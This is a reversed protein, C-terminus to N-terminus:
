RDDVVIFPILEEPILLLEPLQSSADGRTGRSVPDALNDETNVYELVFKINAGMALFVMRRISDNVQWNRSRGRNYAGVVGTNDSRILIEANSYGLQIAYRAALEAAIMEAWGIDRSDKKWDAALRWANWQGAILVGIGWSTSADVWIGIDQRPGRPKLPRVLSPKDLMVRWWKMDTLVSRPAFRPAFKTRFSSIFTCLNSLYARGELYVFTVHSLTGNISMAEKFSVRRAEADALFVEVKRLYKLRKAEPLTVAREPLLWLFGVYVVRFDYPTIKGLKWPTGLPQTVAYIDELDYAYRYTGQTYPEIPFRFNVLDDVWKKSPAIGSAELIAVIADMVEGQVGPGSAIGFPCVHDIFFVGDESQLVLFPKHAPLIPINRFASDIDLSAAQTGEPATAVQLIERTLELRM